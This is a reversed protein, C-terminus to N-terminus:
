RRTFPCSGDVRFPQTASGSFLGDTFMQLSAVGLGESRTFIQNTGKETYSWQNGAGADILVAVFFLDILRKCKEKDDTDWERLLGDIRPRGADM